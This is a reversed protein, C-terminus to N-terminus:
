TLGILMATGWVLLGTGLLRTPTENSTVKEVLVVAAVLAIWWLNMVGLVFLLAMLAWCCGVCLSGHHIGLVLAGQRGDRWSGLLFGLPSRCKSLCQDKIGTFQYAGAAVLLGGGLWRSTSEGMMNVLAVEHLLWQSATALAAFGSWAVLYGLVFLVTSGQQPTRESNITVAYSRIMPSASPLMMGAMMVSWMSFMLVVDGATWASTMPMAFPSGMQGMRITLLGLYAWCLATVTILGFPVALRGRQPARALLTTM